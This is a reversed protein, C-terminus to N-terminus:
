DFMHSTTPLGKSKAVYEDVRGQIRANAIEIYDPNLECGMWNRNHQQAVLATTGAGMFMDLVVGPETPADPHECTPQWGITKYKNILGTGLVGGSGHMGLDVISTGAKWRAKYQGDKEMVREWPMGCEACVKPPCGALIMPEILKPPFTAFHALPMPQTAITWVTRKNRGSQIIDRHLGKGNTHGVDGGRKAQGEPCFGKSSNWLTGAGSERVADADYWYRASKTLLFVYEHAKTPRDTVSEPMPNPKHWIIDSRLYWGDDQLAFALRWPVGLLNKPNIGTYGAVRQQPPPPSDMTPQHRSEGAGNATNAGAYSDGMNVWLTGDDRLVRRAESFIAVLNGIYEQLTEELGVQGKVGYDRLGYYPPSTIICNVSEDDCQKLYDLANMQEIYNLRM